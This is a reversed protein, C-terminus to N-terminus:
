SQDVRDGRGRRGAVGRGGRPLPTLCDPLLVQERGFVPCCRSSTAAALAGRVLGTWERPAGNRPRGLAEGILTLVSALM